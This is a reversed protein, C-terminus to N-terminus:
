VVLMYPRSCDHLMIIFGRCVAANSTKNFLAIEFNLYLPVWEAKLKTQAPSMGADPKHMSKSVVEM